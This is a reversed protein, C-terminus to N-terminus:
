SILNKHKFKILYEEKPTMYDLIIHRTIYKIMYLIINIFKKDM